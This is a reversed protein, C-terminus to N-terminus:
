GVAGVAFRKDGNGVAIEVVDADLTVVDEVHAQGADRGQPEKEAAECGDDGPSEVDFAVADPLAQLQAEAVLGKVCKQGQAVAADCQEGDLVENQAIVVDLAVAAAENIRHTAHEDAQTRAQADFAVQDGVVAGEHCRILLGGRPQAAPGDYQKGP